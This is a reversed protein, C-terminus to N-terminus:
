EARLVEIPNVLAARRAPVYSAVLASVTSPVVAAVADGSGGSRVGFLLHRMLTAAIAASIVGLVAGLGVLWAAEGLVVSLRVPARRRRWACGM